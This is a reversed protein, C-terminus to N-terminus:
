VNGQEADTHTNCRWHRSEETHSKAHGERWDGPSLAKKRGDSHNPLNTGPAHHRALLAADGAPADGDRQFSKRLESPYAPAGPCPEIGIRSAM